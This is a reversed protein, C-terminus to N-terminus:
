WRSDRLPGNASWVAGHVVGLRYGLSGGHRFDRSMRAVADALQSWRTGGGARRLPRRGAACDVPKGGASTSPRARNRHNNNKLKEVGHDARHTTARHTTGRFDPGTVHAVANVGLETVILAADDGCPARDHEPNVRLRGLSEAECMGIVTSAGASALPPM